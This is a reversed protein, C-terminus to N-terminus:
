KKREATNQSKQFWFVKGGVYVVILAAIVSFAWMLLVLSGLTDILTETERLSQAAVVYGDSYSVTVSAMRVGAEPQWTVRSGNPTVNALVGSPFVPAKGNLLANTALLHRDKGYIMVVPSLSQKIDVSGTPLVENASAGANLKIATDLAIQFHQGNASLRYNQQQALYIAGFTMTFMFSVLVWVLLMKVNNKM